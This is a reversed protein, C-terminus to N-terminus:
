EINFQITKGFGVFQLPEHSDIRHLFAVTGKASEGKNISLNYISDSLYDTLQIANSEGDSLAFYMKADELSAMSEMIYVTDADGSVYSVNLTILIYEMGNEAPELDAKGRLLTNYAEEGREVDVLEFTIDVPVNMGDVMQYGNLSQVESINNSTEATETATEMTTETENELPNTSQEDATEALSSEPVTTSPMIENNIEETDAASSSKQFNSSNEISIETQKITEAMDITNNEVQKSVCGSGIICVMFLPLVIQFKRRKM